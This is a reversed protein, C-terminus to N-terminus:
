IDIVPKPSFSSSALINVTTGGGHFAAGSPDISKSLLKEAVAAESFNQPVPSMAFFRELAKKAGQYTSERADRQRSDWLDLVAIAADDAVITQNKTMALRQKTLWKEKSSRERIYQTTVNYRTALEKYTVGKEALSRIVPWDSDRVKKHPMRSLLMEKSAQPLELPEEVPLPSDQM